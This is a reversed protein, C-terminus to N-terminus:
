KELYYELQRINQEQIDVLERAFECCASDPFDHLAKLMRAMADSNDDEILRAVHPTSVNFLTKRQVESWARVRDLLHEREGAFGEGKMRNEMRRLFCLYKGLQRNLDDCLDEDEVKSLLAEIKWASRLCTGRTESLLQEDMKKLM